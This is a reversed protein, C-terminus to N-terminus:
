LNMSVLYPDTQFTGNEVTYNATFLVWLTNGIDVAQFYDGYQPVTMAGGFQNLYFYMNPDSDPENSTSTVRFQVWRDGASKSRLAVVDIRHNFPDYQTTYYVLYVNGTVPDVTVYPQENVALNSVVTPSTWTTGGDISRSFLVASNGCNGPNDLAVGNGFSPPFADYHGAVCVQTTFYLNNSSSSLDVALNPISATRFQETAWGLTVTANPLMTGQGMYSLITSAPGFNTGGPPSSRIRCTVPGFSFNTGYNCWTVYVNGSKDVVPTTFSVFLDSGSVPPNVLGAVIPCSTLNSDCRAMYGSSTGGLTFHDWAIYVSGYFPSTPDRDVALLDKDELFPPFFGTNGYIFVSNWCPNSFPNSPSSVCSVTSNFLNANSKAVMIGNSGFPGVALSGYFFNGDTSAVVSPDGWAFMFQASPLVDPINGSSKLISRGGDASVTFGSMSTPVSSGCDTPIVSCFLFKLDNFGGM